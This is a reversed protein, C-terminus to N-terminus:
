VYRPAAAYQVPAAAYSVAPAAAYSVAPAAYSAPAAYQVPAAAYQPAAAYVTRSPQVYQPQQQIVQQPQMYQPQQPQPQIQQPAQGAQSKFKKDHKATTSGQVMGEVSGLKPVAMQKPVVGVDSFRNRFDDWLMWFMGDLESNGIELAQMLDPFQPWQPWSDSLQGKWEAAPNAGWPNRVQLVRWRRGDCDVERATIVSYAHGKVIGDTAIAEGSAGVGAQVPPDKMTWACMIFNQQDAQILEGWVQDAPVPPGAPKLGVSNRDKPNQLTVDMPQYVDANFPPRGGQGQSYARTQTCETLLMYAVLCYAGQIQVYSGFWKAFAKEALLVWMENDQPKAMLPQGDPGLPIFDDIVIAEWQRTQANFINLTYKGDPQVCKEQFLHFVAGEFEALGALAALFWCDGLVGQAIDNPHVNNFLKGGAGVLQSARIWRVQGPGAHSQVDQVHDAAPNPSAFISNNNPPFQQDVFKGDAAVAPVVHPKPPNPAPHFISMFEQFSIRGNGDMDYQAVTQSLSQPDAPMGCDTMVGALESPDLQNSRDKDRAVFAQKLQLYKAQDMAPQQQPQPQLQQPQMMMQPQMMQPQQIMQPQMMQPQQIMQPQQMIMQPQQMIMQPQGAVPYGAPRQQVYQM